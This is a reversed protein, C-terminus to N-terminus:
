LEIELKSGQKLFRYALRGQSQEAARVVLEEVKQMHAARDESGALGASSNFWLKFGKGQGDALRSDILLRVVELNPNQHAGNGCFIYHDATVRQCFDADLNYESGHHQVKLVDV